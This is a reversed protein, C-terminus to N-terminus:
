SVSEKTYQQATKALCFATLLDVSIFLIYLGWQSLHKQIFNFTVLGIPTEHFLDGTYPDIGLNHLYVGETM